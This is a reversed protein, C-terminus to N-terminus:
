VCILIDYEPPKIRDNERNRGGNHILNGSIRVYVQLYQLFQGVLNSIGALNRNGQQCNRTLLGRKTTDEEFVVGNERKHTRMLLFIILIGNYNLQGLFEALFVHGMGLLINM